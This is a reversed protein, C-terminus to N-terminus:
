AHCAQVNTRHGPRHVRSMLAACRDRGRRRLPGARARRLWEPFDIPCIATPSNGVAIAGAPFLNQRHRRVVLEDNREAAGARRQDFM